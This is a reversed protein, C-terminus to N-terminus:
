LKILLEALKTELETPAGYSMGRGAQERVAEVVAKHAHGLVLPGWSMVYDIYQNGDVDWLYPGEAQDIFLPNGGVGRFARVPSNVGGPIVKQAATFLKKSRDTKM